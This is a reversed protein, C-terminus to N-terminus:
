FTTTSSGRPLGEQPRIAAGHDQAENKEAWFDGIPQEDAAIRINFFSNFKIGTELVKAPFAVSIVALATATFFPPEPRRIVSKYGAFLIIDLGPVSTVPPPSFKVAQIVTDEAAIGSESVTVLYELIALTYAYLSMGEGTAPKVTFSYVIENETSASAPKTAAIEPLAKVGHVSPSPLQVMVSFNGEAGLPSSPVMNSSLERVGEVSTVVDTGTQGLTAQPEEFPEFTVSGVFGSNDYLRVMLKHFNHYRLLHKLLMQHGLVIYERLLTKPRDHFPIGEIWAAVGGFGPRYCRIPTEVQAGPAKLAYRSTCQLATMHTSTEDIKEDFWEFKARLDSNSSANLNTTVSFEKEQRNLDIVTQKRDTPLASVIAAYLVAVLLLLSSANQQSLLSRSTKM